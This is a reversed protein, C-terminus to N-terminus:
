LHNVRFAAAHNQANGAGIKHVAGGYVVYFRVQGRRVFDFRRRAAKGVLMRAIKQM